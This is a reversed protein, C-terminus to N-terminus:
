PCQVWDYPWPGSDCNGTWYTNGNATWPNRAATGDTYGSTCCSSGSILSLDIHFNLGNHYGDLAWDCDAIMDRHGSISGGGVILHWQGGYQDVMCLAANLTPGEYYYEMDIVDFGAATLGDVSFEVLAEDTVAAMGSGGVSAFATTSVLLLASLTSLVTKM